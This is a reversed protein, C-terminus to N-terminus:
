KCLSRGNLMQMLLERQKNRAATENPDNVPAYPVRFVDPTMHSFEHMFTNMPGMSDSGFGWTENYFTTNGGIPDRGSTLIDTHASWSQGHGAASGPSNEATPYLTWNDYLQQLKQKCECDQTKDIADKLLKGFGELQRKRGPLPSNKRCEVDAAFSGSGKCFDSPLRVEFLGSPDALTIPNGSVYAYTNLGGGL